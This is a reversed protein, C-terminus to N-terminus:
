AQSGKKGNGPGKGKPKGHGDASFTPRKAYVEIKDNMKDITHRYYSDPKDPRYAGSERMIRFAQEKDGGNFYLLLHALKGDDNSRDGSVGRGSYLDDFKAGQKSGRIWRILENDSLSQSATPQPKTGNSAIRRREGLEQRLYVTAASGARTLTNGKSYM